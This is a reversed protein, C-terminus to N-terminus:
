TPPYQHARRSTGPSRSPWVRCHQCTSFRPGKPNARRRSCRRSCGCWMSTSRPECVTSPCTTACSWRPLSGSATAIDRVTVANVDRAAFLRLADDRIVARSTRDGGPSRMTVTTFAQENGLRVQSVEGDRRGGTAAVDVTSTTPLWPPASPEPDNVLRGRATPYRGNGNPRPGGPETRRPDQNAPATRDARHM